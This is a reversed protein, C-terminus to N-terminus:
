QNGFSASQIKSTPKYPGLVSLRMGSRHVSTTTDRNMWSPTQIEGRVVEPTHMAGGEWGVVWMGTCAAWVNTASIWLAAGGGYGTVNCECHPMSGAAGTPCAVVATHTATTM